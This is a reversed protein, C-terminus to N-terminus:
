KQSGLLRKIKDKNQYFNYMYTWDVCMILLLLSFSALLARLLLCNMNAYTSKTKTLHALCSHKDANHRAINTFNLLHNKRNKVKQTLHPDSNLQFVIKCPPLPNPPHPPTPSLYTKPHKKKQLNQFMKGRCRCGRGGVEQTPPPLPNPSLYTKPICKKQQLNQFM